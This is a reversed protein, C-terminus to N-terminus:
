QSISSKDKYCFYCMGKPSVLFPIPRSPIICILLQAGDAPPLWSEAASCSSPSADGSSGM